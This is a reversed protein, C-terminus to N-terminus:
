INTNYNLYNHYLDDSIRVPSAATEVKLKLSTEIGMFYDNIFEELTKIESLFTIFTENCEDENWYIVKYAIVNELYENGLYWDSSQEAEESIKHNYDPSEDKHLISQEEKLLLLGEDKLIKRLLMTFLDTNGRLRCCASLYPMLRRVFRNEKIHQQMNDALISNMVSDDEFYLDKVRKVECSLGLIHLDYSKFYNRANEEEAQQRECEEAFREEYEYEPINGFRDIPHFLAEPLIDYLGDRTLTVVTEDDEASVSLIDEYSNRKHSGKLEIRLREGSLHNILSEAKLDLPLIM